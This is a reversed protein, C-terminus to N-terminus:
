VNKEKKAENWSISGERMFNYYYIPSDFVMVNLGIKKEMLLCFQLDDDPYVNPFRTDGIASRKWAKSWVNGFAHGDNDFPAKYGYEGFIFGFYAIDADTRKVLQYIEEFVFPHLIKDDDDAFLIYEGDALDLGTNRAMGANHYSVKVLTIKLKGYQKQVNSLASLNYKDCADAVIIIEYDKFTQQEISYLLTMLDCTNNHTPIIISFTM